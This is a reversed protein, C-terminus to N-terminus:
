FCTCTFAWYATTTNAYLEVLGQVTVRGFGIYEGGLFSIPFFYNTSPRDEQPITAVTTYTDQAIYKVGTSLGDVM